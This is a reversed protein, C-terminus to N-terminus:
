VFDNTDRDGNDDVSDTNDSVISSKSMGSIHFRFNCLFMVLLGIAVFWPMCIALVLVVCLPVVAVVNDEGRTVTFQSRCLMRVFSCIKDWLESVNREFQSAQSSKQYEEQADQMEVSPAPPTQSTSYKSTHTKVYGSNELWILADLVDGETITLAQEAQEPTVGTKECLTEIKETMDM